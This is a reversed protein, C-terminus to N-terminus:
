SLKTNGGKRLEEPRIVRDISEAMTKTMKHERMLWEVIEPSKPPRSPDYNLWFQSIAARLADLAQTHYSDPERDQITNQESAHLPKEPQSESFAPNKVLASLELPISYGERQLWYLVEAPNVQYVRPYGELPAIETSLDGCYIGYELSRRVAEYGDPESWVRVEEYEIGPLDPLLYDLPPPEQNLVIFPAQPLPWWQLKAWRAFNCPSELYM